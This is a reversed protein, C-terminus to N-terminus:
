FGKKVDKQVHQPDVIEGAAADGTAGNGQIRGIVHHHVRRWACVRYIHRM